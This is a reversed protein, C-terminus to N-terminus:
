FASPRLATPVGVRPLAFACRTPPNNPTLPACKISHTWVVISCRGYRWRIRSPTPSSNACSYFSDLTLVIFCLAFQKQGVDRVPMLVQELPYRTSREFVRALARQQVAADIGCRHLLAFVSLLTSVQRNYDPEAPPGRYYDSSYYDRTSLTVPAPQEDVIRAMSDVLATLLPHAAVDPMVECLAAAVALAEDFPLHQSVLTTVSRMVANAWNALAVSIRAVATFMLKRHSDDAPLARLSLILSAALELARTALADPLPLDDIVAEGHDNDAGGVAGRSRSRRVLISLAHLLCSTAYCKSAATTAAADLLRTCADTAEASWGFAAGLTAFVRVCASNGLAVALSLADRGLELPESSSQAASTAAIATATAADLQVLASILRAALPWDALESAVLMLLAPMNGNRHLQEDPMPPNYVSRPRIRRDVGSEHRIVVELRDNSAAITVIADLLRSALSHRLAAMADLSVRHTLKDLVSQERSSLWLSMLLRASTLPGNREVFVGLASCVHQLQEAALVCMLAGVPASTAPVCHAHLKDSVWEIVATRLDAVLSMQEAADDGAAADM